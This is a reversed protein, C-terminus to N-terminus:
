YASVLHAWCSAAQCRQECYALNKESLQGPTSIKHAFQWVEWGFLVWLVRRGVIALCEEPAFRPLLTRFQLLGPYVLLSICLSWPLTGSHRQAVFPRKPLNERLTARRASGDKPWLRGGRQWSDIQCGGSKLLRVTECRACRSECGWGETVQADMPTAIAVM